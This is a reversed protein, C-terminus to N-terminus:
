DEYTILRVQGHKKSEIRGQDLLEQIKFWVGAYSKDINESIEKISFMEGEHEKLFDMIKEKVTM